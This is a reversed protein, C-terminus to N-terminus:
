IEPLEWDIPTHGFSRLKENIASFPKSGFFGNRASLPSPHTGLIIEHIDTDILRALKQAYGGWFVFVIPRYRESLAKLVATTFKEWGKNKHANPKRERVTLVANLLLVGQQAWFTLNGHSPPSAGLDDKLEQYMNQLSRPIPRVEPKVSFALGHAFGPTPYPDQGLIVVKVQDFPTLEFAQFVEDEPPLITANAREDEIYDLLKHFYPKDLEEGIASRWSYPISDATLM